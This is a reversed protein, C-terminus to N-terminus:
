ANPGGALCGAPQRTNVRQAVRQSLQQNRTFIAEDSTTGRKRKKFCAVLPQYKVIECGASLERLWDLALAKRTQLGAEAVASALSMMMRWTGFFVKLSAEGLIAATIWKAPSLAM